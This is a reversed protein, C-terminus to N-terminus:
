FCSFFFVPHLIYFKKITNDIILFTDYKDLTCLDGHALFLSPNPHWSVKHVTEANVDIYAKAFEAITPASEAFETLGQIILMLSYIFCHKLVKRAEIQNQEVLVKVVPSVFGITSDM